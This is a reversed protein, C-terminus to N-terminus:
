VLLPRLVPWVHDAIIRYGHANPHIRDALNLQRIGAVGHLFSPVFAMQNDTALRRYITLFQEAIGAQVLLPIEMGMLAMKVKPYKTKVKTIIAQLNKHTIQPPLGRMVDNIGLELVFLAIPQNLWYDIRNLGGTSTDGSVGANIVQYDLKEVNIKQQIIGPFSNLNVNTLGYGATLSDGFFLINQM